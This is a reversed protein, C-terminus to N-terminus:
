GYKRSCTRTSDTNTCPFPTDKLIFTELMLSLLGMPQPALSSPFSLLSEEQDREGGGGGMMEKAGSATM